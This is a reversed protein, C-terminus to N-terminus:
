QLEWSLVVDAENKVQSWTKQDKPRVQFRYTRAPLKEALAPQVSAATLGSLTWSIPQVSNVAEIELARASVISVGDYVVDLSAAVPVVQAQNAPDLLVRAVSVLSEARLGDILEVKANQISSGSTAPQGPAGGSQSSGATAVLVATLGAACIMLIPNLQRM